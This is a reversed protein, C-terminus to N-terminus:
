PDELGDSAHIPRQHEELSQLAAAVEPAVSRRGMYVDQTMSIRSHGLQDAIMRASAGQGDLLTAVTKRYTHPTVWEFETGARVRRFAAGVNNRDRYGGKTDAFVPFDGIGTRSRRAQLMLVCWGPLVLVRRSTRSKPRTAILGRGKVRIVTREVRLIGRALDIDTWRVGLAEGLRLGTALIFRALEPLDHRRAIDNSDLLTLWARVQAPTMAKATRDRDLELPTTDRVPNFPLGGQRVLWGCIGSLVTRCLKATSYGHVHLVHQLFRDVRPVTLEGLRLDGIGPVVHRAVAHRYLDLTTPSRSGRRVREEMVILWADAADSLRSTGRFDPDDGVTLVMELARMLERRAEVRTAGSRKLRRRRGSYDRVNVMAIVSQGRRDYMVEGHEGLGLPRM